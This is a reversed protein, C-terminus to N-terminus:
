RKIWGTALAFAVLLKVNCYHIHTLLPSPSPGGGFLLSPPHYSLLSKQGGSIVVSVIAQQQKLDTNVFVTAM